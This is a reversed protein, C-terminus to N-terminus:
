DDRSFTVQVRKSADQLYFHRDADEVRHHAKEHGANEDDQSVDHAAHKRQPASLSVAEFDRQDEAKSHEKYQESLLERVRAGAAGQNTLRGIHRDM